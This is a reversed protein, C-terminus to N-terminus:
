RQSRKTIRAEAADGADAGLNEISVHPILNAATFLRRLFPEISVPCPMSHAAATGARHEVTVDFRQLLPQIVQTLKAFQLILSSTEGAKDWKRKLRLCGHQRM